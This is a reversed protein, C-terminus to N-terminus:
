HFTYEPSLHAAPKKCVYARVDNAECNGYWWYGNVSPENNNDTFMYGCNVNTDRSSTTMQFHTYNRETKDTWTYNYMSENLPFTLGIWIISTDGTTLTSYSSAIDLYCIPLMIRFWRVTFSVIRM